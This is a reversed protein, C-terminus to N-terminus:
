ENDDIKIEGKPRIDMSDLKRKLTNRNIGLVQAATVQKGSFKKLIKQFLHKELIRVAKEHLNEGDNNAKLFEVVADEFKMEWGGEDRQPRAELIHVPLHEPLIVGYAALTIGRKIANELERINGRWDYNELIKLAEPSLKTKEVNSDSSFQKLFRQALIPIDEKRERLPPLPIHIVNLRHYLDERFLNNKMLEELNQNTAAVIRVDVKVSYKGGVRYFESNQLVRLIKAQLQIEMDGIEDLFITGGQALEFKGSKTDTAGTFAGKEHGFLESELLERSIAACNISILPKDARKSYNHVARAVMEKGTGSEGTILVALDSSASRGITKFINQMEKSKGVIVDDTGEDHAEDEEPVMQATQSQVAKDLLSYIEEFDFPKSIYDLAGKRMAEIANNMTDQATMVVVRQNPKIANVKELLVIGDMGGLFIDSFVLLYDTTSIKDLAEEGSVVAHVEFGKKELAKKFIWRINEEDDVVLVKKKGSM